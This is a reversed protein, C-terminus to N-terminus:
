KEMVLKLGHIELKLEKIYTDKDRIMNCAEKIVAKMFCTMCWDKPKGKDDFDDISSYKSLPSRKCCESPADHRYVGAETSTWAKVVECYNSDFNRMEDAKAKKSGYYEIIDHDTIDINFVNDRFMNSFIEYRYAIAANNGLRMYTKFVREEMNLIDMSVDYCVANM